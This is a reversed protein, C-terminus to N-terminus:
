SAPLSSKEQPGHDTGPMKEKAQQPGDEEQMKGRYTDM